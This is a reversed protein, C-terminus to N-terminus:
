HDLQAFQPELEDYLQWLGQSIVKTHGIVPMFNTDGGWRPVIHFHLHDDIGAGAIRGLNMGVNMGECNLISELITCSESILDMMELKENKDLLDLKNLHRYPVVMIHGNNYPFYNMIVFSHRAKLLIFNDRDKDQKPKKCFICGKEKPQKIYEIRWPAWLKHM